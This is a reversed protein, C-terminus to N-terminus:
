HYLPIFVQLCQVIPLSWGMVGGTDGPCVCGAHRLLGGPVCQTVCGPQERWLRGLVSNRDQVGTFSFRVFRVGPLAMPDNEWCFGWHYYLPLGLADLEGELGQKAKRQVKSKKGRGGQGGQCRQFNLLLEAGEVEGEQGRGDRRVARGKGREM